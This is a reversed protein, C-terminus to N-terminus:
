EMFLVEISNNYLIRRGMETLYSDTTQWENAPLTICHVRYRANHISTILAWYFSM